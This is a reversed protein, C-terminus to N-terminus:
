SLRAHEPCYWSDSGKLSGTVSGAKHCHNVACTAESGRNPSRILGKRKDQAILMEHKAIAADRDEQAQEGTRESADKADALMQRSDIEHMPPPLAALREREILEQGARINKSNVSKARSIISQLTPMYEPTEDCLEQYAALSSECDIDKLGQWMRKKLLILDSEDKYAKNFQSAYDISMAKSITIVTDKLNM